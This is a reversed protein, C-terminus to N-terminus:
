VKKFAFIKRVPTSHRYNMIIGDVYEYGNQKLIDILESDLYIRKNCIGHREGSKRALAEDIYLIGGPKLKEAIDKLMEKQYTFEHFSNIILIKDFTNAPLNTTKETGLVLKYSSTMPKQRLDSYYNWAFEAQRQNFYASDIDELYFSIGDSAAAYAAEWHCCQAGVSGVTQGSKFNYFLLEKEKQKVLDDMTTYYMGCHGKFTKLKQADLKQFCCSLTCLIIARSFVRFMICFVDNM